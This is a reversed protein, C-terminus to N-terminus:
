FKLFLWVHSKVMSVSVQKGYRIEDDNKMGSQKRLMAQDLALAGIAAQWFFFINFGSVVVVKILM